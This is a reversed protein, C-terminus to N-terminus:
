GSLSTSERSLIRRPIRRRLLKQFFFNPIDSFFIYSQPFEFYKHFGNAVSFKAAFTRKESFSTESELIYSDMRSLRGQFAAGINLRYIAAELTFIGEPMDIPKYHAM